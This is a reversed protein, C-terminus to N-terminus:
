MRRRFEGCVLAAAVSANLSEAVGRDIKGETFAPIHLRHTIHQQLDNSIGRAENGIIIFGEPSLDTEYINEGELMTGYVKPTFPLEKLFGGLYAYHVNVRSVSGMTAQIVKPNYVDVSFESCIIYNIGFWDAIRIITGLNGPDSIDDLVLVLEHELKATEFTHTHIEIQALVQNPTTLNSIRSLEGETVPFVGGNHNQLLLDNEKIWGPLAYISLVNFNSELLDTVTKSGEAIFQGNEERYKKQRLSTLHKIQNKSLM